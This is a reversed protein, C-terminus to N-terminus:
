ACGAGLSRPGSPPLPDDLVENTLKWLMVWLYSSLSRFGARRAAEEALAYEQVDVCLGLRHCELPEAGHVLKWRALDL